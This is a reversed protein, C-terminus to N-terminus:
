TLCWVGEVLNLEPAYPPLYHLRLRPHEAAVQKVLKCKHMGLNDWVLDIPRDPYQALLRRLFAASRGGHTSGGTLESRDLRGAAACRLSASEARGSRPGASSLGIFQAAPDHQVGCAM